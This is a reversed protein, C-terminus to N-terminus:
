AQPAPASRVDVVEITRQPAPMSGAVHEERVVIKGGERRAHFNTLRFHNTPAAHAHGEGQDEYLTGTATGADDLAVLLTLPDTPKEGTFQMVPGVPVISGVRVYTEPLDADPSGAPGLVEVRRWHAPGIPFPSAPGVRTGDAHPPLVDCRVLLSDGLLFSTDESRLRPNTPDAFFTPRVVPAGSRSAEHFLTYLYPMLRYRRQLARRCTAECAEGLEWPEHMKAPVKGEVTWKIKHARAFPLLAGIGMWRAFLVPDSNEIFGGIDPGAFPQGSLGMNLTMSISWRLHRWDARNDGTWMAAYRQGGLFSARTLVFPRKTPNAQEIGARTARAMQMGYINHYFEHPGPGGLDADARHHNTAPMSKQVGKFVAPENMDNWVGDIGLAMFPQYLQAWWARVVSSTFDPFACAGPWVEGQFENGRADTVFHGLERGQAYPAYAPDVKLGPDIMCIVKFGQEHLDSMLEKPQPFKEQDFTFCRFGDMYDIDLWLVDCPIQRARFGAAIERVQSAPEYSWRCQHYGIAWLPPLPMHGTLRALESLVGQATDREIITVPPSAVGPHVRQMASIGGHLNIVLRATTEFIVGFASGDARVALVWPHSQYISPSRDDYDFADTNWLTRTLGNRLLPGAQEGTGYLSTGSATPIHAIRWGKHLGFRPAPHSRSPRAPAAGIPAPQTIYGPFPRQPLHATRPDRFRVVGPALLQPSPDQLWARPPVPALGPAVPAHLM